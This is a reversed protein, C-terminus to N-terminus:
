SANTKSKELQYSQYMSVFSLGIFICGFMFDHLTLLVIATCSEIRACVLYNNIDKM